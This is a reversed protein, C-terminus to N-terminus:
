YLKLESHLAKYFNDNEGLKEKIINNLIYNFNISNIIHDTKINKYFNYFIYFIIDKIIIKYDKNDKFKNLVIILANMERFEIVLKQPVYFDALNSGKDIYSNLNNIKDFIAENVKESENNINVEKLYSDLAILYSIYYYPRNICIEILDNIETIDLKGAIYCSIFFLNCNKYSINNDNSIGNKNLEYLIKKVNTAYKFLAIIMLLNLNDIYFYADKYLIINNLYLDIYGDDILFHYDKLTNDFIDFNTLKSFYDYDFKKIYIKDIFSIYEFIVKKNDLNKYQDKYVHEICYKLLERLKNLYKNKNNSFVFFKFINVIFTYNTNINNIKIAKDLVIDTIISNNELFIINYKELSNYIDIIYSTIDYINDNTQLVEKIAESLNEKLKDNDFISFYDSINKINESNNFTNFNDILEIFADKDPIQMKYYIINIYEILKDLDIKNKDLIKNYITGLKNKIHNNKENGNNKYIKILELLKKENNFIQASSVFLSAMFFIEENYAENKLYKNDSKNKTNQLLDINSYYNIKIQNILKKIERPTYDM